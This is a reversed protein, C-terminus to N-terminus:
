GGFAVLPARVFDFIPKYHIQGGPELWPANPQVWHVLEHRQVGPNDLVEPNFLLTDGDTRAAGNPIGHGRVVVYIIQAPDHWVFRLTDAPSHLKTYQYLEQQVETARARWDAPVNQVIEHPGEDNCFYFVGVVNCARCGALSSLGFAAAIALPGFIGLIRARTRFLTM